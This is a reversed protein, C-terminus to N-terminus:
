GKQLCLVGHDVGEGRVYCEEKLMYVLKSAKFRRGPDVALRKLADFYKRLLYRKLKELREGSSELGDFREMEEVRDDVLAYLGEICGRRTLFALKDLSTTISYKESTDRGKLLVEALHTRVLAYDMAKLINNITEGSVVLPNVLARLKRTLDGDPKVYEKVKDLLKVYSIQGRMDYPLRWSVERGCNKSKEVFRKVMPNLFENELLYIFVEGDRNRCTSPTRCVRGARQVISSPRGGDSILSDFSMDVGAEVVSTAVLVKVGESNIRELVDEREGKTMLSHLLAIEDRNLFGEKLLSRYTEIASCVTDRAVFVRQGSGVLERVKGVLEEERIFYTNWRMSGVFDEFEKDRVYVYNGETKDEPGLKVVKVGKSKEFTEIIDREILGSLTASAIIVPSKSAVSIRLIEKFVTVSKESDEDYMMHAEDLYIASLFMRLRPTAYHKRPSFIETVPIRFANYALSDLTTVVYRADFLPEKKAESVDSLISEGMQYAVHDVEIGVSKLARRVETLVDESKNCRERLAPNEALANVLLCKYIDAVIARLPLSHILGYSMGQEILSKAFLPAAVSKGYGTPAELVIRPVTNSGVDHEILELAKEILPRAM